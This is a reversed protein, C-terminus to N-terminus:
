AGARKKRSKRRMPSALYKPSVGPCYAPIATKRAAIEKVTRMPLLFDMSYGALRERGKSPWATRDHIQIM